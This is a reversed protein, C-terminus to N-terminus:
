GLAKVGNTRGESRELFDCAEVMNRAPDHFYISRDGGPHEVPGSLAVRAARLRAMM